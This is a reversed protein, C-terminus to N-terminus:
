RDPTKDRPRPRSGANEADDEGAPDTVQDGTEDAGTDQDRDAARYPASISRVVNVPCLHLAAMGM